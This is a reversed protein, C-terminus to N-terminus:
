LLKFENASADASGEATTSVRISTLENLGTDARWLKANPIRISFDSNQQLAEAADPMWMALRYEGEKISAPLQLTGSVEHTSGPLWRRIDVDDLRVQYRDSGNHLVWYVPRENFPAAFGTNDIHVTFEFRGGPVIAEPLQSDKLEFRYGLREEIEEYCNNAKWGALVDPHYDNNLYSYHFRGLEALATECVSRSSVKCTEGGMPVYRTDSELYTKWKEIENVPYTGEDTNSALFCDNHHGLRAQATSTFAASYGLPEAFMEGKHAPYRLQVARQAPTAALLADIIGQWTKPDDLLGNTSTHWEGWAGVFGAQVVAIVDANKKLIPAVQQIHKKVWAETADPESNPYPGFNYAFRPIVKVGSSRAADFGEQLDTLLSEPIDASRYYDLRIYSYVLSRGENRVDDFNRQELINVYSYLGREPNQNDTIAEPYVIPVSPALVFADDIPLEIQNDDGLDINIQCAAAIVAASIAVFMAKKRM